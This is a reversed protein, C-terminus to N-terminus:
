RCFARGSIRARTFYIPWATGPLVQTLTIGATNTTIQLVPKMTARYAM